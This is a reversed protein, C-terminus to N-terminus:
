GSVFTATVGADRLQQVFPAAEAYYGAYFVADPSSAGQGASVTASFDKDGTKVKGACTSDAAAGLAETVDKALGVGYDSNDQIVCVKKYGLTDALYKAVAPGQVADNALGRFFNTWGNTTM